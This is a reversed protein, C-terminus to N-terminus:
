AARRSLLDRATWAAEGWSTALAGSSASRASRPLAPSAPTTRGPLPRSLTRFLAVIEKTPRGRPSRSEVAGVAAGPLGLLLALATGLPAAPAVTSRRRRPPAPVRPTRARGESGTEKGSALVTLATVIAALTALGLSTRLWALAIGVRPVSVGAAGVIDRPRPRWADRGGRNDGQMVYGSSASGGVIRHIVLVGAGPTGAPIRYAVVDGVRYSRSRVTFVLDGSRLTPEMSNGSVIVYATGGRLFGPWVLLICAVACAVLGSTAVRGAARRGIRARRASEEAFAFARKLVQDDM